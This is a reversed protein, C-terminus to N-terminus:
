MSPAAVQCAYTMLVFRLADAGCEMIGNPFEKQLIVKAKEIEERDLNGTELNRELEQM